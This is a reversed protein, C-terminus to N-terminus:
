VANRGHVSLLLKKAARISAAQVLRLMWRGGSGRERRQQPDTSGSGGSSSGSCAGDGGALQGGLGSLGTVTAARYASRLWQSGIASAYGRIAHAPLLETVLVVPAM